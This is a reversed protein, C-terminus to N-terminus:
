RQYHEERAIIKADELRLHHKTKSSHDALTSTRAREHKIDVGHEKLSKQLSCGTEGIYSKGCSREIKYVGKLRVQSISDKVSCM